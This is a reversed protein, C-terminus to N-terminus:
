YKRTVIALTESNRHYKKGTVDVFYKHKCFGNRNLILEISKRSYYHNWIRYLRTEGSELLIITQNLLTDNKPYDFSESLELYPQSNWFGKNHISWTKNTTHSRNLQETFVEFIFLGKPKLARHIKRLLSDREKNSLVGFDYYIMIIVDFTEQYNITLYDQYIYNIKLENNKAYEKAYKISRKSYDIGTVDMGQKALRSCYLGPGCGLDLLTSSTGLIIDKILWKCSKDITSHKRSAADINPNLHASLMQKSIHPDNWFASTSKSFLKPKKSLKKLKNIDIKKNTM